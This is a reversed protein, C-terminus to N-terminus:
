DYLAPRAPLTIPVISGPAEQAAVCADSSIAAVYGDWSTPGSATGKTAAEIFDKLEVDYSDIFRDKWDTLIANQLKADKRMVIAMPEPLSALGEEGVVQCQIDYGYRCNVFVEVDIRVGKATELLVM